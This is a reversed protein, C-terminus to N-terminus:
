GVPSAENGRDTASAAAFGPTLGLRWAEELDTVEGRELADAARRLLRAIEALSDISVNEGSAPDPHTKGRAVYEDFADAHTQLGAPKADEDLRSM